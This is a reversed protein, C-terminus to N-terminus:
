SFSLFFHLVSLEKNDSNNLFNLNPNNFSRILKFKLLGTVLIFPLCNIQTTKIYYNIDSYLTYLALDDVLPLNSFWIDLINYFILDM